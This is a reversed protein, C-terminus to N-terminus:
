IMDDGLALVESSRIGNFITIFIERGMKVQEDHRSLLRGKTDGVYSNFLQCDGSLEKTVHPMITIYSLTQKGSWHLLLVERESALRM